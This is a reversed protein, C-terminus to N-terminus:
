FHAGTTPDNYKENPDDNFYIGKYNDLDGAEEDVDYDEEEGDSDDEVPFEDDDSLGQNTFERPPQEEEEETFQHQGEEQAM